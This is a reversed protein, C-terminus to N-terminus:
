SCCDANCFGYFLFPRRCKNFSEVEEFEEEEKGSGRRGSKKNM